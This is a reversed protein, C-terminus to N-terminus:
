NYVNACETVILECLYNMILQHHTQYPVIEFAKTIKKDLNSQVFLHTSECELGSITITGFPLTLTVTTKSQENSIKIDIMKYFNLKELINKKSQYLKNKEIYDILTLKFENGVIALLQFNNRESKQYTNIFRLSKSPLMLLLNNSQIQYDDEIELLDILLANKDNKSRWNIRLMDNNLFYIEKINSNNPNFLFPNMGYLGADSQFINGDFYHIEIIKWEQKDVDYGVDITGCRNSSQNTNGGSCEKLKLKDYARAAAKVFWAMQAVMKRDLKLDDIDANHHEIFYPHIRGNPYCHLFSIKRACPTTGIIRGNRFFCRQEYKFNVFESIIFSHAKNNVDNMISELYPEIDHISKVDDKNNTKLILNCSTAIDSMSTESKHYETNIFDNNNDNTDYIFINPDILTKMSSKVFFSNFDIANGDRNNDRIYGILESSISDYQYNQLM